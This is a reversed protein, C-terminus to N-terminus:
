DWVRYLKLQDIGDYYSKGSGESTETYAIHMAIHHIVPNQSNLRLAAVSRNLIDDADIVIEDRWNHGSDAIQDRTFPLLMSGGKNFIQFLAVFDKNEHRCLPALADADTFLNVRFNVGGETIQKTKLAPKCFLSFDVNTPSSQEVLYEAGLKLSNQVMNQYDEMSNYTTSGNPTIAVVSDQKKPQLFSINKTNKRALKAQARRAKRNM